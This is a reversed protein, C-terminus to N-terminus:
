LMYKDLTREVVNKKYIEGKIKRVQIYAEHNKMHFSFFKWSINEPFIM